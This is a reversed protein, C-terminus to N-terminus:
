RCGCPVAGTRTAGSSAREAVRAPEYDVRHVAGDIVLEYPSAAHARSLSRVGYPSLFETERSCALCCGHRAPRPRGARATPARGTGPVDMMPCHEALEPRNQLFWRARRWFARFRDLSDPELTAVAFLPTLGVMSRVRVPFSEGRPLPAHRRLLLRGQEDWLRVDEGAIHNIAHAILLFHEFFKNAVDQYSPNERALELAIDLMNLCYM